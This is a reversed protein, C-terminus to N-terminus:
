FRTYVRVARPGSNSTVGFDPADLRRQVDVPNFADLANTVRVGVWPRWKRIRVRREVSLNVLRTPPMRYGHRPSVPLHFEDLAGFPLGSRWDVVLGFQWREGATARVRGIVRHPVDNGAAVYENPGIIPWPINGYFASLPNVDARARARTYAAQAELWRGATYRVTLEAEQYDSRGDGALRLVSREPDPQVVLDRTGQRALLNIQVVLASSLQHTLGASWIVSRPTQLGTDTSPVLTRAPTTLTLGDGSFRTDTITEFQTFVGAMTPTREYFRGVGARLVSTGRENLVVAVGARATVNAVGLVGDWDVRGGADVVWRTGPQWRDQAFVGIDTGTLRQTTSGSFTLQRSITGDARRATVPRSLRDGHYSLHQVDIGLKVFHRGQEDPRAHSWTSAGQYLRMNRGQSTFYRGSVSPPSLEMGTIRDRDPGVRTAYDSVHFLTELVSGGSLAAVDTVIVNVLEQRLAAAADPPTFTDLNVASIRQSAAALAGSVAHRGFRADVRTFSSFARSNTVDTQARSFIDTTERRYEASQAVFVRERVLPGRASVRPGFRELGLVEFLNGRRTRLTPVINDARFSWTRGGSVTEIVTVGSSFGAFEAALPNPLVEIVHVAVWPVQFVPLGTSRDNVDARGLRVSSQNPRGGKISVGGPLAIVGPALRQADGLPDGTGTSLTDVSATTLREGASTQTRALELGTPNHTVTLTEEVVGLVVELELVTTRGGMVDVNVHREAFPPRSVRLRYRGPEAVLRFRGDEDSRTHAVARGDVTTLLIVAGAVALRGAQTSVVGDIAGSADARRNQARADVAM